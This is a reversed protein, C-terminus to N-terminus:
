CSGKLNICMTIKRQCKVQERANVEDKHVLKQDIIKLAIDFASKV